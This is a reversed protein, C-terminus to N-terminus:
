WRVEVKVETGPASIPVRVELAGDVEVVEAQAGNVTITMGEATKWSRPALPTMASSRALRMMLGLPMTEGDFRFKRLIQVGEETIVPQIFESVEVGGPGTVQFLPNRKEDRRYGKVRWGLERVPSLPWTQQPTEVIGIPMGPPLNLVEIGAPNELAGARGAWTGQVNIFDGRWVKGLRINEMDYAINAREPYGVAVVRGSLGRMFVGVMTPEEAGPLLDFDSRNIILGKPFPAASGASLYTWMADIQADTDGELLDPFMAFDPFWFTPMRTGPRKSQPDKMYELFWRPKLRSAMIALDYAPEGLSNQGAFTHCDICRFGEIGVLQHGATRADLSFAPAHDPVPPENDAAVLINAIDHSLGEPYAPMRTVVYPRVKLGQAITSHIVESRLKNGVGTLWPPLRGEDGLEATGTFLSNKKQDPGGLGDRVHCSLCGADGVRWNAQMGPESVPLLPEGVLELIAQSMKADFEYGPSGLPSSGEVCSDASATLESWAKRMPRAKPEHCANCGYTSYARGGRIINVPDPRFPPENPIAVRSRSRLEDKGFERAEPIGPGEITLKLESPGAGQWFCLEIEHWGSELTLTGRKTVTGHNGDNDILKKNQIWLVSGDDSSLTFTFEGKKAVSFEGTFRLGFNTDRPRVSNTLQTTHGGAEPDAERLQDCSHFSRSYSDYRLGSIEDVIAAGQADVSQGRILWTAISVVEEDTMPIQPMRGSPHIAHSNKLEEVLASLTTRRIMRNTLDTGDHCAACGIAQFLEEGSALTAENFPEAEWNPYAGDRAFLFHTIDEAVGRRKEEPVSELAHPMRTGAEIARPDSIWDILWQPRYRQSAKTLLPPEVSRFTIAADGTASHCKLCAADRIARIAENQSIPEQLTEGHLFSPGISFSMCLLILVRLVM